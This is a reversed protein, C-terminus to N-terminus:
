NKVDILEWDKLYDNSLITENFIETNYKLTGHTAINVFTDDYYFFGRPSKTNFNSFDIFQLKSCGYFMRNMRRLDIGVLSSLDISTLQNCGEFMSNINQVKEGIFNIRISTLESCGYFMNDAQGLSNTKFNSIDIYKLSKCNYFMRTMSNVNSTNFHNIDVEKLSTCGSFMSSLSTAHSTDFMKLNISTLSVCETFLSSLLAVKKTSFNDGFIVSVLNASYYFMGNMNTLESTDLNTLDLSILKPCNYFLQSASKLKEKFNIIVETIGTTNDFKFTDIPTINKGDIILYSMTTSFYHNYYGKYFLKIEGSDKTVNYKAIIYNFYEQKEEEEKKEEEKKEDSPSKSKNSVVIIAAVSGAIVIVGAVSIIIITLIKKKLVGAKVTENFPSSETLM